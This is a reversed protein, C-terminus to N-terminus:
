TYGCCLSTTISGLSHEAHPLSSTSRVLGPKSSPAAANASNVSSIERRRLPPEPPFGYFPM